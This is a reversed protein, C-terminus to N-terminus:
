AVARNSSAVTAPNAPRNCRRSAATQAAGSRGTPSRGNSSAASVSRTSRVQFWGSRVQAVPARAAPNWAWAARVGCCM